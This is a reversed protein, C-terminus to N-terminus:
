WFDEDFIENKVNRTWSPEKEGVATNFFSYVRKNLLFEKMKRFKEVVEAREKWQANDRQLCMIKIQRFAITVIDNNNFWDSMM